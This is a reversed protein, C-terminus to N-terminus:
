QSSERRSFNTEGTFFLHVDLVGKNAARVTLENVFCFEKLSGGDELSGDLVEGFLVAESQSRRSVQFSIKVTQGSLIAVYTKAIDQYITKLPLNVGSTCVMKLRKMFRLAVEDNYDQPHNHPHTLVVKRPRENLTFNGRAKCGL